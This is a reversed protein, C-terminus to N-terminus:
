HAIGKLVEALEWNTGTGEVCSVGSPKTGLLTWIGEESVYIEMMTGGHGLGMAVLVQHFQEDLVKLVVDRSTCTGANATASLGVALAIVSVILKYRIKM